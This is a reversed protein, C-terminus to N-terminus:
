IKRPDTAAICPVHGLEVVLISRDNAGARVIYGEDGTGRPFVDIAVDGSAFSEPLIEKVRAGGFHRIQNGITIRDLMPALSPNQAMSERCFAQLSLLLDHLAIYVGKHDLKSSM